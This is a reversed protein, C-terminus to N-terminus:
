VLSHVGLGKLTGRGARTDLRRWGQKGM